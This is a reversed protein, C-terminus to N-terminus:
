SEQQWWGRLHRDATHRLVVYWVSMEISTTHKVNDDSDDDVEVLGARSCHSLREKITDPLVSVHLSVLMAM